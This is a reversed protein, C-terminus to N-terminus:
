LLPSIVLRSDLIQFRSTAIREALPFVGVKKPIVGSESIDFTL